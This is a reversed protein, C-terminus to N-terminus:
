PRATEDTHQPPEDARDPAHPLSLDCRFGEVPFSTTAEGGLAQVSFAILQSGFGRRAPPRPPPGGRERWRIELVPNAETGGADWGVEVDGHGSLAGYKAANTALEHFVMGLTLVERPNLM